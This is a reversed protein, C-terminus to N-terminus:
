LKIIKYIRTRYYKQSVIYKVQIFYIGPILDELIIKKSFLTTSFPEPITQFFDGKLNYMNMEVIKVAANPNNIHIFATAPIPYIPILNKIYDLAFSDNIKPTIIFEIENSQLFGTTILSKSNDTLSSTFVEGFNWDFALIFSQYNGSAANFTKLSENNIKPATIQAFLTNVSALTFILLLLFRSYTIKIFM